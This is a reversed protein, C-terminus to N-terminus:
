LENMRAAEKTLLPFLEADGLEGRNWSNWHSVIFRTYVFVWLPSTVSQAFRNRPPLWVTSHLLVARPETLGVKKNSCFFNLKKCLFKKIFYVASIRVIVFSWV